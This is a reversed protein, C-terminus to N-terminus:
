PSIEASNRQGNTHVFAVVSLADAVENAQVIDYYDIQALNDFIVNRKSGIQGGPSEWAYITV